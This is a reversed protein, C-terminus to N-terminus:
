LYYRVAEPRKALEYFKHPDDLLVQALDDVSPERKTGCTTLFTNARSGFDVFLSSNPISNNGHMGLLFADNPLCGVYIRAESRLRIPVIPMQSLLELQLQSFGSRRTSNLMQRQFSGFPQGSVHDALIEFWEKATAEDKPAKKSLLSVLAAPEPRDRIKLKAM